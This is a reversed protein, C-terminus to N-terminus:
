LPENHQKQLECVKSVGTKGRVIGLTKRVRHWGGPYMDVIVDLERMHIIDHPEVLRRDDALIAHFPGIVWRKLIMNRLVSVARMCTLLSGLGRAAMKNLRNYCPSIQAILRPTMIGSYHGNPLDIRM